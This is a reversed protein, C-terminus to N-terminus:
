HETTFSEFDISARRSNTSSLVSLSNDSRDERRSFRYHKLTLKELHTACEKLLAVTASNYKSRGRGFQHKKGQNLGNRLENPDLCKVENSSTYSIFLSLTPGFWRLTSEDIFASIAQSAEDPGTFLSQQLFFPFEVIIVLFSYIVAFFGFVTAFSM